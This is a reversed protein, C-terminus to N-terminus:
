KLFTEFDDQNFFHYKGVDNTILYDGDKMKKFRFYAISDTKAKKSIDLGVSM